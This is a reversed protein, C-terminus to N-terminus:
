EKLKDLLRQHINEFGGNSMVLVHDGPQTIASVSEVIDDTSTFVKAKERMGSFVAPVDWRIDQTAYIYVLDADALSDPLERAHFGMKMTNSRPELIAIIRQGGVRERLGHLTTQIATPHHAFDDYVCIENVQGRLELRRKVNVFHTLADIAIKVPVGAHRAAAIAALANSVNHRGILNWNVEGQVESDAVVQFASGDSNSLEAHWQAQSDVDFHELTTWCGMDLVEHLNGDLLPTIILGSAPVTRVLFHFQKQIQELDDFIDAHDFELNNM